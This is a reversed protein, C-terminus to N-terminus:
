PHQALWTAPQTSDAQATYPGSGTIASPPKCGRPVLRPSLACWTFSPTVGVPPPPPPPRSRNPTSRERLGACFPLVGLSVTRYWWPRTSCCPAARDAATWSDPSTESEGPIRCPCDVVHSAARRASQRRDMPRVLNAREWGRGARGERRVM